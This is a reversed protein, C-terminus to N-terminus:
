DQRKSSSSNIVTSFYITYYGERGSSRRSNTFLEFCFESRERKYEVMIRLFLAFISLIGAGPLVPFLPPMDYILGRSTYTALKLSIHFMITQIYSQTTCLLM